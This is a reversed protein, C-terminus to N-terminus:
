FHDILGPVGYTPLARVAKGGIFADFMFAPSTTSPTIGTIRSIPPEDVIFAASLTPRSAFDQSLHWYDLTGSANSRLAGTIMSRFYRLEAFREQYGFIAYDGTPPDVTNSGSGDWYLERSQVVQEGLHSFVPWMYDYRTSRLWHKDIGQQYTLDARINLLLMLYGHEVFSKTFGGRNSIFVSNASLAGKQDLRTETGQFTTQAVTQQNFPVSDGGLFEPRQLRADPSVVGFHSRILETYRTGGRMDRELLRQVQFAERLQNVTAAVASSLDARIFPYDANSPDEEISWARGDAATSADIRKYGAYTSQTGDSEYVTEPGVTWNTNTVAGIGIVPAYDGIPLDVAAGKQPTPACSTFYDHRKGRRLIAYQSQTDPGDDTEVTVSDQLNQDRFWENYILNYMRFPLASVEMPDTVDAGIPLGLADGLSGVTWGTTTDATVVPIEYDISSDPDPTREGMFEQWHDWVLRNPCFFAFTDLYLNDMIPVLQTTLRVFVTPDIVFTDAPYVEFLAYPVLLGADAIQGTHRMRIPFASRPINAQPVQSLRNVRNSPQRFADNARV